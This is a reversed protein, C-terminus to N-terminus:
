FGIRGLGAKGCAKSFFVMVCILEIGLFSLGFVVCGMGNVRGFSKVM